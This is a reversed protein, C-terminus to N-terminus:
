GTRSSQDRGDYVVDDGDVRAETMVPHPRLRHDHFLHEISSGPLEQRLRRAVFTSMAVGPEPSMEDGKIAMTVRQSQQALPTDARPAYVLFAGFQIRSLLPLSFDGARLPCLTM